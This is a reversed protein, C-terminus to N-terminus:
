YTGVPGPISRDAVPRVLSRWLSSAPPCTAMSDPYTCKFPLAAGKSCTPALQDQTDTGVYFHAVCEDGQFVEVEKGYTAMWRIIEERSNEPVFNRMTMRKLTEMLVEVMHAFPDEMSNGFAQKNRYLKVRQPVKNSIVIRDVSATDEIGLCTEESLEGMGRDDTQNLWRLAAIM